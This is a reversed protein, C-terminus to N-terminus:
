HLDPVQEVDVEHRGNADHVIVREVMQEAPFQTYVLFPTVVQATLGTPAIHLLQFEPPFV